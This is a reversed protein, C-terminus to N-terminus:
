PIYHERKQFLVPEDYLTWLISSHMITTLIVRIDEWVDGGEGFDHSCEAHWIENLCRKVGGWVHQHALNTRIEIFIIVLFDLLSLIIIKVGGRKLVLIEGM